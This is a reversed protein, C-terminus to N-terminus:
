GTYTKFDTTLWVQQKLLDQVASIYTKAPDDYWRGSFWLGV